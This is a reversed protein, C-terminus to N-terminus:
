GKFRHRFNVSATIRNRAVFRPPIIRTLAGARPMPMRVNKVQDQRTATELIVEQRAKSAM